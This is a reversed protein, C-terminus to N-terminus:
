DLSLIRSGKNKVREAARRVYQERDEQLHSICKMNKLLRIVVKKFVRFNKDSDQWVAGLLSLVTNTAYIRSRRILHEYEGPAVLQLRDVELFVPAELCITSVASNVRSDVSEFNFRYSLYEALAFKLVQQGVHALTDQMRPQGDGHLLRYQRSALANYAWGLDTFNYGLMEQIHPYADSSASKFKMDGVVVGPKYAEVVPPVSALLRNTRLHTNGVDGSDVLIAGILAEMM